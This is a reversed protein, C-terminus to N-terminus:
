KGLIPTNDVPAETKPIEQDPESFDGSDNETCVKGNLSHNEPLTAQVGDLNDCVDVIPNETVPCEPEDQGTDEAVVFSRGQKDAFSDGVNTGDPLANGSVSIPNQGTQLREDVSPQGVYKCVFYKPSPSALAVGGALTTIVAIVTLFRKM